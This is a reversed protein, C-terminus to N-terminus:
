EKVDEVAVCAGNAFFLRNRALKTITYMIETRNLPKMTTLAKDAVGTPTLFSIKQGVQLPQTQLGYLQNTKISYFQGANFFPHDDTATIKTGLFDLEYLNSHQENALAVITTSETQQTAENYTLVTNGIALKEIPVEGDPTAIKTGTAFCHVGIGDFEIESLAVDEYKDGKYVDVIEFKLNLDKDKGQLTDVAFLQKAKTDQVNLLAFPMDNVYLKLQKVRANDHWTKESKMYGNYLEVTTVPPSGKTRRSIIRKKVASDLSSPNFSILM